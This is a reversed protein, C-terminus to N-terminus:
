WMVVIFKKRKMLDLPFFLGSKTKQEPSKPKLLVKDGVLIFKKLDADDIGLSM